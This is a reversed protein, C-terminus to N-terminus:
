QVQLSREIAERMEADMNSGNGMQAMPSNEMTDTHKMIEQLTSWSECTNAWDLAMQNDHNTVAEFLMDMETMLPITDNTALFFLVNFDSLADVFKESSFKKLHISLKQLTQTQGITDRNCVPFDGGQCISSHKDEKSFATPVDTLLYELPLPRALKQVENGYKDKEKYYVDAVILEPSSEKIYGLEPADLTPILCNDSVLSMCQTSVQYGEFSISNEKDGSVVVTVFKSGYTGDTALRCPNPYKNQFHAATICEEASLFHTNANRFNKVKGENNLPVLDTIIWGVKQLGLKAAVKDAMDGYPDDLFKIQNKTDIQPPEYIAAVEAKVGLPVDSHMSYKGYLYGMRQYGSSRWFNLFQDVVEKNEFMINDVFRYKQRNLTVASPLSDFTKKTSSSDTKSAAKFNELRFYKGKDAGATQKRMYAHFSLFKIEKEKLYAEDWPEISLNDMKFIGSKSGGRRIRGDEKWLNRDIEDEIVSKSLESKHPVSVSMQQSTSKSGSSMGSDSINMFLMDGHKLGYSNVTKSGSNPVQQQNNRGKYLQWFCGTLDFSQYIKEHLSKLSEKGDVEVRKTGQASQVRIIM